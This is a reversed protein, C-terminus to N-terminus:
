EHDPKRARWFFLLSLATGLFTYVRLSSDGEILWFYASGAGIALGLLGWCINEARKGLLMKM